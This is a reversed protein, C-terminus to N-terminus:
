RYVDRILALVHKEILEPTIEAVSYNDDNGSGGAGHMHKFEVRSTSQNATISVQPQSHGRVDARAPYPVFVGVGNPVAAVSAVAQKEALTAVIKNLTPLVVSSRCEDWGKSFAAAASRADLAQQEAKDIMAKYARLVADVEADFEKSMREGGEDQVLVGFDVWGARLAPHAALPRARSTRSVLHNRNRLGLGGASHRLVRV